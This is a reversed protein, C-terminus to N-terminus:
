PCVCHSLVQPSIGADTRQYNSLCEQLRLVKWSVFLKDILLFHRFYLESDGTVKHNMLSVSTV